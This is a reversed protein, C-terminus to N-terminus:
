AAGQMLVYRREVAEGFSRGPLSAQLVHDHLGIDLRTIEILTADEAPQWPRVAPRQNWSRPRPM